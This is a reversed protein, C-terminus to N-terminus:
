TKLRDLLWVALPGFVFIPMWLMLAPWYWTAEPSPPRGALQHSIFVAALCAGTILVTRTAALKV